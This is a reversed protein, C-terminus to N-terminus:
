NQQVRIDMAMKCSCFVTIEVQITASIEAINILLFFTLGHLLTLVQCILWHNLCSRESDSLLKWTSSAYKKWKKTNNMFISMMESSSILINPSYVYCEKLNLTCKRWWKRFALTCHVFCSDLGLKYCEWIKMNFISGNHGIELLRHSMVLSLTPFSTRYYVM